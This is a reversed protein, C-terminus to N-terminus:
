GPYRAALNTLTKEIGDGNLKPFGSIVFSARRGPGVTSYDFTETVQTRNADLPEFEWRWRHGFPHRWMILTPEEFEVVKSTLRYPFGYLRMSMTFRAGLSLRDPGTVNGRVSGSGDLEAHRHPDAVIAFLEAPSANVVVRRTVRHPGTDVTEVAM